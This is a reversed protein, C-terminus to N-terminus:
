TPKTWRGEGAITGSESLPVMHSSIYWPAPSSPRPSTPGYFVSEGGLIERRDSPGRLIQGVHQATISTVSRDREKFRVQLRDVGQRSAKPPRRKRPVSWARAM